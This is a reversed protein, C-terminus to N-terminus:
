KLPPPPMGSSKRPREAAFRINDSQLGTLHKKLFAFGSTAHIHNLRSLHLNKLCDCNRFRTLPPITPSIANILSFGLLAVTWAILSLMTTGMSSLRKENRTWCAGNKAIRTMRTM